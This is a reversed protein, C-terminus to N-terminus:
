WQYDTKNVLRIGITSSTHSRSSECFCLHFWFLFMFRVFVKYDLERQGCIRILEKGM